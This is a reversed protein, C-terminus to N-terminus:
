HNTFMVLLNNNCIQVNKTREAVELDFCGFRNYSDTSISLLNDVVKHVAHIYAIGIEKNLM